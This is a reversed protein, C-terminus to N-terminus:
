GQNRFKENIEEPSLIVGFLKEYRELEQQFLISWAKLNIPSLNLTCEIERNIIAKSMKFQDGQLAKQLDPSDHLIILKMGDYSLNSVQGTVNIEKFTSSQSTQVDPTESM